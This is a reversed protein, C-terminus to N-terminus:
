KGTNGARFYIIKNEYGVPTALKKDCKPGLFCCITTCHLRDDIYQPKLGLFECGGHTASKKTQITYSLAMSAGCLGCRGIM